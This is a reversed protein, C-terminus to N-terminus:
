ILTDIVKTEFSEPANEAMERLREQIERVSLKRRKLVRAEAEIEGRRKPNKLWQFRLEALRDNM